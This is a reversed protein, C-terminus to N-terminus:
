SETAATPVGATGAEDTGILNGSITNGTSASGWMDIGTVSNGSIVNGSVVTNSLNDAITIGNNANPIAHAGGADTGILNGRITVGGTGVQIGEGFGGGNGSIVNDAVAVNSPGAENAWYGYGGIWVGDGTDGLAATGTADTGIYNGDVTVGADPSSLLLGIGANGSIM